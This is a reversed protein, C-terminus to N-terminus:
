LPKWPNYDRPYKAQIGDVALFIGDAADWALVIKHIGVNSPMSVSVGNGLGAPSIIWFAVIRRQPSFEYMKDGTKVFGENPKGNEHMEPLQFFLRGHLATLSAMM